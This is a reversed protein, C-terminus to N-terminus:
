AAAYKVRPHHFLSSVMEPRKQNSKMRSSLQSKLQDRSRPAPRTRLQSKVTNNLYETPNLEPCYPPLYFLEIRESRPAVWDRVRKARHVQLNDVILFVKKDADRLLRALFKIFVPVKLGGRYIMFRLKGRNTVTSIMSMSFRAVQADAIPTQGQPAYGRCRHDTSSVGTEDCWQIEAGEAKARQAIGPYTEKLWKQVAAPQQEYARKKPKQPTFGWRRLYEGVTRIPMSVGSEREILERVASRTWLAFPMMMQEPVKDVIMRKVRREQDPTLTRCTGKRRGRKGLSLARLGGKRYLAWWKRVAANSVDLLDAIQDHTYGKKRLAIARRRLELQTESNLKRCDRTSM